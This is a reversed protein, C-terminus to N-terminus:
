WECTLVVRACVCLPLISMVFSCTFHCTMLVSKSFWNICVVFFHIYTKSMCSVETMKM